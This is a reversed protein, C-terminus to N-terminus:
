KQGTKKQALLVVGVMAALLLFSTAEFPVLYETFLVRGISEVTGIQSASPHLQMSVIGRPLVIGALLELFVLAAFIVAVVKKYGFQEALHREDGLNLLMIVFLFLVMIAGAYVLIQIIAIFQAQLLLYMMALCFFNVILYLVSMMPNRRTAMLVASAVALAAVPLFFFLEFNM